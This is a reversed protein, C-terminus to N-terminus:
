LKQMEGGDFLPQCPRVWPDQCTDMILFYSQVEHALAYDIDAEATISHLLNEINNLVYLMCLFLFMM